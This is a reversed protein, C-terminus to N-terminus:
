NPLYLLDASPSAAVLLAARTPGFRVMLGPARRTWSGWNVAAGHQLLTSVARMAKEDLLMHQTGLDRPMGRYSSAAYNHLIGELMLSIWYPPIFGRAATLWTFYIIRAETITYWLHKARFRKEISDLVSKAETDAMGHVTTLGKRFPYTTWQSIRNLAREEQAQRIRWLSSRIEFESMRLIEPWPKFGHLCRVIEPPVQCRSCDCNEAHNEIPKQIPYVPQFSFPGVMQNSVPGPM